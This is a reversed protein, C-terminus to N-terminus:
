IANENLRHDGCWDSGFVVPYGNVTPARRRCRGVTAKSKLTEDKQKELYWMCSFCCMLSSRHMWPDKSMAEEKFNGYVTKVYINKKM